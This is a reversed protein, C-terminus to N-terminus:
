FIIKFLYLKLCILSAKTSRVREKRKRCIDNDRSWHRFSFHFRNRRGRRTGERLRKRSRDRRSKGRSGGRAQLLRLRGM